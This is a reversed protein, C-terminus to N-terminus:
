PIGDEYGALPKSKFQTASMRPSSRSLKVHREARLGDQAPKSLPQAPRQYM